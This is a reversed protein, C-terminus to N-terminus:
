VRLEFEKLKLLVEPLEVFTSEPNLWSTKFHCMLNLIHKRIILDETNLIHGKFFALQHILM